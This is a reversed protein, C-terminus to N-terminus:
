LKVLTPNEVFKLGHTRVLEQAVQYSSLDCASPTDHADCGFVVPAGEEGAIKWFLDRPYHRHDRIGLFNIELPFNLRAAEACLRRIHRIYVEEDGQYRILDPHAFYTFVGTHMAAIANDVYETLLQESDTPAGSYVGNPYENQLFHLALILYEAGLSRAQALMDEFYAPYYELEFGIHLEIRDRYEERLARLERIYDGAQATPVRHSSEHGDPFRFPAHESFGMVKIGGAIATEIYERPSGSAHRCLPTHTHYNYYM